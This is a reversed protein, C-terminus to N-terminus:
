LIPSKIYPLGNVSWKEQLYGSYYGSTVANAGMAKYEPFVPGAIGSKIQLGKGAGLNATLDRNGFAFRTFERNFVDTSALHGAQKDIQPHSPLDYATVAEHKDSRQTNGFDFAGGPDTKFGRRGVFGFAYKLNDALQTDPAKNHRNKNDELCNGLRFQIPKNSDDSAGGRLYQNIGAERFLTEGDPGRIFTMSQAEKPDPIQQIHEGNIAVLGGIQQGSPLVSISSAM